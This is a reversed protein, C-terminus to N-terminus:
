KRQPFSEQLRIAERTQATEPHDDGLLERQIRLAEDLLAGAAAIDGQAALARGLGRLATAVRPHARPM